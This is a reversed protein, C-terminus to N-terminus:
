KDTSPLWTDPDSNLSWNDPITLDLEKLADYFEQNVKTYANLDAQDRSAKYTRYALQCEIYKM